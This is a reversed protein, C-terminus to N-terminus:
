TNEGVVNSFDNCDNKNRTIICKAMQFIGDPFSSARLDTSSVDTDDALAVKTALSPSKKKERAIRTARRLTKPSAVSDVPLLWSAWLSGVSTLRQLAVGCRRDIPPASNSKEFYGTPAWQV